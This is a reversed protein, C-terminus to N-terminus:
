NVGQYRAPLQSELIRCAQCNDGNDPGCYFSVFGRSTKRGCYVRGGNGKRCTFGERNVWYGKGLGRTQIDLMMCSKCNCGDTPGCNGDCCCKNGELKGGCYFKGSAGLKAEIGKMNKAPAIPDVPKGGGIVFKKEPQPQSDQDFRELLEKRHYTAIHVLFEDNMGKFTCNSISCTRVAKPCKMVHDKFDGFTTKEECSPCTKPLSSIMRRAVLSDKWVFPENRCNPCGKTTLDVCCQNCFIVGCCSSEAPETAIEICVPCTLFSDKEM